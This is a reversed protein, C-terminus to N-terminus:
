EVPRLTPPLFPERPLSAGPLTKLPVVPPERFMLGVPRLGIVRGERTVAVMAVRFPRLEPDVLPVGQLDAAATFTSVPAGTEANFTSLTPDNGSVLVIRGFTSPPAVTRTALQRQWVQNGNGRRFARLLQDLSAVYVLRDDVAAGAVDAGLRWRWALRGTDAELAYFHNDTSGVFVRDGALTQASLVGGLRQEWLLAGEKLSIRALRDGACVVVANGDAALSVPGSMDIARQWLPQGDSSRFARLEGPAVLALLVEGELVLPARLEAGLPAAWRQEGSASQVARLGDAGAIFVLGDRVSPRSGGEVEISWATAGTERELAVLLGSQLPVYVRSSDLAGEASPASRLDVAWAEEAPLLPAPPPEALSRRQAAHASQPCAGLALFLLLAYTWILHGV